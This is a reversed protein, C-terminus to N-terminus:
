GTRGSRKARVPHVGLFLKVGDRELAAAGIKAAKADERPLVTPHKGVLFVESGFRAFAQALECGVPGAGVVALRRPLETLNFATESTLYATEALGPVDPRAPRGGM